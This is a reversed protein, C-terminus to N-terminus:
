VYLLIRALYGNSRVKWQLGSLAGENPYRSKEHRCRRGRNQTLVDHM